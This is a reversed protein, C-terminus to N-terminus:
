DQKLIILNIASYNTNLGHQEQVKNYDSVGESENTLYIALSIDFYNKIKIDLESFYHKLAKVDFMIKEISEDELMQKLLNNFETNITLLNDISYQTNNIAIYYSTKDINLAFSKNEKIDKILSLFEDFEVITKNVVEYEKKPAIETSSFYESKSVISKFGLNTMMEFVSSSFPYDYVCDEKEFDLEVDTKITALTRSLEAMERQSLLLDRTKGSINNINDYIGQLSGYETILKTATKEGIGKVGPINDSSDGMISKMEIVQYPEISKLEKLSDLNYDVIESIGKVNLWVHTNKDILQLLDRDGSVLIVEGGFKKAVSGIIDDAEIEPIEVVKINMEALLNKLPLFQCRLDDPMPSRTGKYDAYLDHRFTHKGADFAVVLYKPELKQIVNILMKCFGYIANSPEGQNDRLPPLGYFARFTLSNGDIVVTRDM